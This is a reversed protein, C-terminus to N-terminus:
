SAPTPGPLDARPRPASAATTTLTEEPTVVALAAEREFLEILLIKSPHSLDVKGDVLDVVAAIIGAAPPCRDTRRQVTVRWREGPAIRDRLRAVAQRLSEVDPATWLDVPVWKYTYRFVGPAVEHVGRLRRIVERPDLATRVAVVGKRETSIVVPAEDGVTRLRGVIERRARGPARWSVSVLLNAGVEM